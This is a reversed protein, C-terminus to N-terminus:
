VWVSKMVLIHPPNVCSKRWVESRERELLAESLILIGDNNCAAPIQELYRVQSELLVAYRSGAAHALFSYRWHVRGM